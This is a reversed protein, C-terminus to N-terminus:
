LLRLWGAPNESSTITFRGNKSVLPFRETAGGYINQQADIIYNDHAKSIVAVHGYPENNWVLLDDVAPSM